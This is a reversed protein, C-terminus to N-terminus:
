EWHTFSQKNHFTTSSTKSSGAASCFPQSPTNVNAISETLQEAARGGAGLRASTILDFLMARLHRFLLHDEAKLMPSQTMSWETVVSLAASLQFVLLHAQEVPLSLVFTM